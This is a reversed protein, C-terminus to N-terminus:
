SQDVSKYVRGTPQSGTSQSVTIVYDPVDLWAPKASGDLSECVSIAFLGGSEHTVDRTRKFWRSLFADRAGADRNMDEWETDTAPEAADLMLSGIHKGDEREMISLMDSTGAGMPYADMIGNAKALRLMFASKGSGRPGVVALVTGLRLGGGLSQDIERSGTSFIKTGTPGTQVDGLLPVAAMAASMKLVNRRSFSMTNEQTV